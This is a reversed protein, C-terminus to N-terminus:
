EPPLNEGLTVNNEVISGACAWGGPPTTGCAGVVDEPFVVPVVESQGPALQKTCTRKSLMPRGTKQPIQRSTVCARAAKTGRNTVTCEVQTRAANPSCIAEFNPKTDCGAASAVVVFFAPLARAIM